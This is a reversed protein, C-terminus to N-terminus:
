IWAKAITAIHELGNWRIEQIIPGRMRTGLANHQESLLLVKNYQMQIYFGNFRRFQKKCTIIVGLYINKTIYKYTKRRFPVAIIVFDCAKANKKMSGGLLHICKVFRVGCNDGVRLMSEVQVM